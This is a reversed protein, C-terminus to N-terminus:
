QNPLQTQGEGALKFLREQFEKVQGSLESVRKDAHNCDAQIQTKEIRLDHVAQESDTFKKFQRKYEDKQKAEARHLAENETSLHELQKEAEIAQKRLGENDSALTEIRQQREESVAQAQRADAQAQNLSTKLQETETDKKVQHETLADVKAELLDIQKRDEDRLAQLDAKKQHYGEAALDIAKTIESHLTFWTGEISHKVSESATAVMEKFWAPQPAKQAQETHAQHQARYTELIEACKNYRGGVVQQLKAAKIDEMRLGDALMQQLAETYRQQPIEPRAM